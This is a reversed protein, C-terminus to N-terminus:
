YILNLIILELKLDVIIVKNLIMLIVKILYDKLAKGNILILIIQINNYLKLKVKPHIHLKLM